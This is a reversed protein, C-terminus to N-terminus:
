LKQCQPMAKTIITKYATWSCAGKTRSLRTQTRSHVRDEKISAAKRYQEHRSGPIFQWIIEPEGVRMPHGGVQPSLPEGPAPVQQRVWLKTNRRQVLLFREWVILKSDKTSSVLINLGYLGVFDFARVSLIPGITSIPEMRRILQADKEDKSKTREASFLLLIDM